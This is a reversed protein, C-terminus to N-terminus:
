IALFFFFAAAAATSSSPKIISSDFEDGTVRWVRKEKGVALTSSV